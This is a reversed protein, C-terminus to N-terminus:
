KLAFLASRGGIGRWRRGKNAALFTRKHASVLWTESEGIRIEACRRQTAPGVGRQVDAARHDQGRRQLRSCEPRYGVESVKVADPLFPLLHHLRLRGRFHDVAPVGCGTNLSPGLCLFLNRVAPQLEVGLAVLPQRAIPTVGV